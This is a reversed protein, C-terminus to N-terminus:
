DLGAGMNDPTNATEVASELIQKVMANEADQALALIKSRPTPQTPIMLMQKSLQEYLLATNDIWDDHGHRGRPFETGQEVLRAFKPLGAFFKFRGRKVVGAFSNIRMNKADPVNSVKVMEIPLFINRQKAMLRLYDVFYVCSATKEFCINMPRHRLVMDIVNLALEMPAWQDGRCDVLYGISSADIKGVSIVSDDAHIDESSALDVMIVASSLWNKSVEVASVTHQEFLEKTFAQLSEAVPRNLQQCSFTAPDDRQMQLLDDRTFGGIEGNRKTFRPFRPVKQSDPLNETAATWCTTISIKWKGGKAHWRLVQEYLDGFAYRTGSVFRFGGPDILNQALTFDSRVNEVLKPNKWNSENM